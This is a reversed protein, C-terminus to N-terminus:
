MSLPQQVGPIFHHALFDRGDDECLKCNTQLSVVPGFCLVFLCPVEFKKMQIHYLFRIIIICMCVWLFLYFMQLCLHQILVAFALLCHSRESARDHGVRQFELSKLDGPEETRPIRWALISSHSAMEEGLPDEWGLPQIWM